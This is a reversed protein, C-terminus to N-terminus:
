PLSNVRPSSADSWFDMPQPTQLQSLLIPSCDTKCLILSPSALFVGNGVASERPAMNPAGEGGSLNGDLPSNLSTLAGLIQKIKLM